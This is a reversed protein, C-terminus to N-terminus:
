GTRNVVVDVEIMITMDMVDKGRDETFIRYLYPNKREFAREMNFGDVGMRIYLAEYAKKIDEEINSKAKQIISDTSENGKIQTEEIEGEIKISILAYIEDDLEFFSLNPKYKDINISFHEDDDHVDLEHRGAKASLWTLGRLEYDTLWGKLEYDKMVAAGSFGPKEDSIEVRPIIAIEGEAFYKTLNDLTQRYITTPNNKKFFNSIYVGILNEDEIEAELVDAGAGEVALILVTRSISREKILTELAHKFMASDELLEEGCLIMKMHGMFIEKDTYTDTGYIANNLSRHTNSKVTKEMDRVNRSVKPMELSISYDNEEIDISMATVFGRNDLQTGDWCGSLFLAFNAILFFKILRRM